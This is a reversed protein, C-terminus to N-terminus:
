EGGGLTEDIVRHREAVPAAWWARRLGRACRSRAPARCRLASAKRIAHVADPYSMASQQWSMGTLYTTAPVTLDAALAEVVGEDTMTADTTRHLLEHVLVHIADQGAWTLRGPRVGALASWAWPALSIREPDGYWHVGACTGNEGVAALVSICDAAEDATIVSVPLAPVDAHLTASLWAATRDATAQQTPAAHAVAVWGGYALVADLLLALALARIM